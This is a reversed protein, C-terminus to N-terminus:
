QNEGAKLERPRFGELTFTRRQGGSMWWVQLEIRDLALAGPTVTPPMAATTVRAQWGAEIGGTHIPQFQGNVVTNRPLTRDLLLDNMSTRALLVARDYDRLRAANRAAGAIGSLLGVIAVGMITTAVVLELLTFGRKGTM